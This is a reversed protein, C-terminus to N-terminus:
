TDGYFIVMSIAGVLAATESGLRLFILYSLLVQLCVLVTALVHALIYGPKFGMLLVISILYSNLPGSSTSDVAKWPRPDQLFKMGQSLMQSEDVNLEYPLAISPLRMMVLCGLLIASVIALSPFAFSSPRQLLTRSSHEAQISTTAHM